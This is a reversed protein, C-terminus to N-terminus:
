HAITMKSPESFEEPYKMVSVVDPLGVWFTLQYLNLTHYFFTITKEEIIFPRRGHITRRLKIIRLEEKQHQAAVTCIGHDPLRLHLTSIINNEGVVM